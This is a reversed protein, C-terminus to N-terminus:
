MVKQIVEATMGAEEQPEEAREPGPEAAYAQLPSEYLSEEKAM